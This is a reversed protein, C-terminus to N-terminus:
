SKADQFELRIETVGTHDDTPVVIVRGSHAKMIKDVIYLGLGSGSGTKGALRPSRWRRKLCDNEEGKEIREGRSTVSIFFKGARSTGGSTRILGRVHSYKEANDLLNYIAESILDKDVSLTRPANRKISTENVEFKLFREENSCRAVDNCLVLILTCLEEAFMDQKNLHPERGSAIDAFTNILKSALDARRLSTELSGTDMPIGYSKSLEVIMRATALPTKIQHAADEFAQVTRREAEVAEEMRKLADQKREEDQRAIQEAHKRNKQDELLHAHQMGVLRGIIGMLRGAYFPFASRSRADLVGYVENKHDKIPAIIIERVDRFSSRIRTDEILFRKTKGDKFVEAAGNSAIPHDIPFKQALGPGLPDRLENTAQISVAAFVLNKRSEDLVRATNIDAGPILHDILDLAKALHQYREKSEGLVEYKPEATGELLEDWHHAEWWAALNQSFSQCVLYLLRGDEAHYIVPGYSRARCRVFGFIEAGAALRTCMMSQPPADEESLGEEELTKKTIGRSIHGKFAPFLKRWAEAEDESHRIDGIRITDDVLLCLGSFGKDL